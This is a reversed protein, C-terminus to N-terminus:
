SAVKVRERETVDRCGRASMVLSFNTCERADSSCKRNPTGRLTQGHASDERLFPDSALERVAQALRVFPQISQDGGLFSRVLTELAVVVELSAVALEAAVVLEAVVVVVLGAAVAEIGAVEVLWGLM